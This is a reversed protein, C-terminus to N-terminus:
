ELIIEDKENLKFSLWYTKDVNAISTKVKVEIYFKQITGNTRFPLIALKLDSLSYNGASTKYIGGLNAGIEFISIKYEKNSLISDGYVKGTQLEFELKDIDKLKLKKTEKPLKMKLTGRTYNYMEELVFSKEKYITDNIYYGLTANLYDGNPNRTIILSNRSPNDPYDAYLIDKRMDYYSTFTCNNCGPISIIKAYDKNYIELIVLSDQYKSTSLSITTDYSPDTMSPVKISKSDFLEKNGDWGKIVWTGVFKQNAYPNEFLVGPYSKGKYVTDITQGEINNFSFIITLFLLYKTPLFNMTHLKLKHLFRIKIDAQMDPM